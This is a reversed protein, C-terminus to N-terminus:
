KKLFRSSHIGVVELCGCQIEDAFHSWKRRVRIDFAYKWRLQNELAGSRGKCWLKFFGHWNLERVLSFWPHFFNCWQRPNLVSANFYLSVVSVPQGNEELCKYPSWAGCLCNSKTSQSAYITYNSKVAKDWCSAKLWLIYPWEIKKKWFTSNMICTCM